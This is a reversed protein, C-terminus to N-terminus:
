FFKEVNQKSYKQFSLYTQFITEFNWHITKMESLVFALCICDMYPTDLFHRTMWFQVRFCRCFSFAFTCSMTAMDDDPNQWYKECQRLAFFTPKGKFQLPYYFKTEYLQVSNASIQVLDLIFVKNMMNSPINTTVM